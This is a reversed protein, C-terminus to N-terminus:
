GRRRDVINRRAGARPRRGRSSRPTTTTSKAEQNQVTPKPSVRPNGSEDIGRRGSVDNDMSDIDNRTLARTEQYQLSIDVVLPASDRFYLNADSNFTSEVQTLYCSYIKPIFTNEDTDSSFDLFRITWVPPFDLMLNSGGGSQSAYTFKRFKSHISRIINSEQQSRAIMKFNFAFNRVRNSKFTTNTNPNVVTKRVFSVTDSSPTKSAAVQLVDTVRTSSVTNGVGNEVAGAITGGMAGLDISSFDAADSFALSQPSPLVIHHQDAKGNSRDYATFRITPREPQSSIELPFILTPTDM